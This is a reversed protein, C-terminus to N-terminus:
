AILPILDTVSTDTQTAWAQLTATLALASGYLVQQGGQRTILTDLCRFARGKRALSLIDIAAREGVWHGQPLHTHAALNAPPRPDRGGLWDDLLGLAVGICGAVTPVSGDPSEPQAHDLSHAAAVTDTGAVAQVTNRLTTVALERATGVPTFLTMNQREVARQMAAQLTQLDPVQDPDSLDIGDEALLPALERLLEDGMGPRHEVRPPGQPPEPTRRHMDAM